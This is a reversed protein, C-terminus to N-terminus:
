SDLIRRIKRQVPGRSNQERLKAEILGDELPDELAAEAEVFEDIAKKFGPNQKGILRCPQFPIKKIECRVV